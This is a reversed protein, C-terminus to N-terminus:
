LLNNLSSAYDQGNIRCIGALKDVLCVEEGEVFLQYRTVAIPLECEVADGPNIELAPVVKPVGRIYARCGGAEIKGNTRTVQQIFRFEYTQSKLECLKALGMDAGIKTITAEMSETLGYLPIEQEGLATNVTGLLHTVEPLTVTVNRAVLKGLVYVTDANVPSRLDLATNAM